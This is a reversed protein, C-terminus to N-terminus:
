NLWEVDLFRWPSSRVGQRPNVTGVIPKRFRRDLIITDAKLTIGDLLVKALEVKKDPPLQAISKQRDKLIRRIQSDVSSGVEMAKLRKAQEAKQANLSDIDGSLQKLFAVIRTGAQAGNQGLSKVINDHESQNEQIARETEAMDSRLDEINKPVTGTVQSTLLNEMLKGDLQENAEQALRGWIVEDLRRAPLNPPLPCDSQRQKKRHIYHSIINGNRKTGGHTLVAGCHHCTLLDGLLFDYADGQTTKESGRARANKRIIEQVQNFVDVDIIPKWCDSEVVRYDRGDPVDRRGKNQKNVEKQAVYALQQLIQKVSSYSFDTGSHKKGRRSEYSKTKYGRQNCLAAVKHISQQKLYARFIFRVINADAENVKMHGKRDEILDYGLLQSGTWLGRGAREQYSRRSRDVNIEREFEMMAVLMTLLIRGHATATNLEPHQLCIFDAERDQLFRGFELFDKTSRSIRSLETFLVTNVKGDEIDRVMEQYQPRNTDKASRGEEVYERANVWEESQGFTDKEASKHGMFRRLRALQNKISGEEVQAQEETSVRVYLGCKHIKKGM